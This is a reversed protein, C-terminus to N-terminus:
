EGNYETYVRAFSEVDNSYSKGLSTFVGKQFRYLVWGNRIDEVEVFINDAADFFPNDEEGDQNLKYIKGVRLTHLTGTDKDSVVVIPEDIVEYTPKPMILLAIAASASIFIVGLLMKQYTKLARDGSNM